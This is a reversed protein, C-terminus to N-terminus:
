LCLKSLVFLFSKNFVFYFSFYPIWMWLYCKIFWTFFCLFIYFLLLFVCLGQAGIFQKKVHFYFIMFHYCLNLLSTHDPNIFSLCFFCSFLLPFVTAKTIPLIQFIFSRWTRHSSTPTWVSVSSVNLVTRSIFLCCDRKRLSLFMSMTLFLWSQPAHVFTYSFLSRGHKRYFFVEDEFFLVRSWKFSCKMCFFVIVFYM